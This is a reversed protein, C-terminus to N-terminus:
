GMFPSLEQEEDLMKQIRGKAQSIAGPSRRLKRALEHNPLIPRGNMGLTHEMIKKHYPDLDDYVIQHWLSAAERHAPTLGGLIDGGEGTLAGESIGAHLKRLRGLQPMSFGTKDAIEADTPERGLEHSLEQEAQKLHYQGIATRQPVSLIQSQQQHVRKLGLLHNYVHTKLRGRRPDYTKLADLTMKRAKSVLLPNTQGIHTQIAGQITPHLTNLMAAHMEPGPTKKWATYADKFEPELMDDM